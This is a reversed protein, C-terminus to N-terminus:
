EDSDLPPSNAVLIYVYRKPDNQPELLSFGVCARNLYGYVSSSELFLTKMNWLQFSGFNFGVLLGDIQKEYKISTIM